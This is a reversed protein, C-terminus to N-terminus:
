NSDRKFSVHVSNSHTTHILHFGFLSVFLILGSHVFQRKTFEGSILQIGIPFRLM